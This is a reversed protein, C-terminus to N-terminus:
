DKANGVLKRTNILEAGRDPSILTLDEARFEVADHSAGSLIEALLAGDSEITEIEYLVYYVMGAEVTFRRAAMKRSKIAPDNMSVDMVGPKVHLWTYQRRSLPGVREGNVFVIEGTGVNMGRLGDIIYVTAKTQEVPAYSPKTGPPIASACGAFFLAVVFLLLKKKM